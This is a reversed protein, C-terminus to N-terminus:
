DYLYSYVEQALKIFEEKESQTMEEVLSETVERLAIRSGKLTIFPGVAEDEGDTEMSHDEELVGNPVGHNIHDHPHYGGNQFSSNFSASPISYLSDYHNNPKLFNVAEKAADSTEREFTMLAEVIEKALVDDESVNFMQSVRSSKDDRDDKNKKHHHHNHHHNHNSSPSHNNVAVNNFGSVNHDDDFDLTSGCMWAPQTKRKAAEDGNSNLKSDREDQGEIKVTMSADMADYYDSRRSRSAWPTASDFTVSTATTPRNSDGDRFSSLDGAPEPELIDSPLIIDEVEKLLIYLPEIQENFKALILRSDAKPVASPDEDVVGSCFRCRFEGTSMDFLQDAELDTYTKKCDKCIFSARSTNDREETEIKRRMHDLKYKVVNVFARYNIYHYNQRTAKGDPGTEMRLRQKIMKDNKLQAIITRLQKREFKLLHELDEEKMCPKRILMDMLLVHEISYFARMVTRVLRKLSSPVDVDM